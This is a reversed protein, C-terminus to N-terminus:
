PEYQKYFESFPVNLSQNVGWGMGKKFINEAFEKEKPLLKYLQTRTAAIGTIDSNGTKQARNIAEDCWQIAEQLPSQQKKENM